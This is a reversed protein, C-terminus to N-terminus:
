ISESGPLGSEKVGGLSPCDFHIHAMHLGCWGGSYCLTGACWGRANKAVQLVLCSTDGGAVSGQKFAPTRVEPMSSGASAKGGRVLDETITRMGSGPRPDITQRVLSTTTMWLSRDMKAARMVTLRMEPSPCSEVKRAASCTPYVVLTLYIRLTHFYVLGEQCCKCHPYVADTSYVVTTHVHSM